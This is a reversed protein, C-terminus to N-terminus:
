TCRFEMLFIWHFLSWVFVVVVLLPWTMNWWIAWAKWSDYPARGFIKAKAETTAPDNDFLWLWADLIILGLIVAGLCLMVTGVVLSRTQSPGSVSYLSRRKLEEIITQREDKLKETKTM